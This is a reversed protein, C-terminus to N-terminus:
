LPANMALLAEKAEYYATKNDSTPQSNKLLQQLAPIAQRDGIQKLARACARQVQENQDALGLLLEDSKEQNIQTNSYIKGLGDAAEWRIFVPLKIDNLVARLLEAGQMDRIEGIARVIKWQTLTNTRRSFEAILLELAAQDSIRGLADLAQQVVFEDKETKIVQLLADVATKGIRVLTRAAPDHVYYRKAWFAETPPQRDQTEVIKGLKLTLTAIAIKGLKGLANSAALRPYVEGNEVLELLPEVAEVKDMAALTNASKVQKIQNEVNNKGRIKGSLKLYGILQEFSTNEFIAAKIQDFMQKTLRTTSM